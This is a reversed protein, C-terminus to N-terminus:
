EYTWTVVAVTMCTLDPYLPLLARQLQQLLLSLPSSSQRSSPSNGDRRIVTVKPSYQAGYTLRGRIASNLSVHGAVLVGFPLGIGMTLEYRIYSLLMAAISTNISLEHM